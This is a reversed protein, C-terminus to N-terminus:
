AVAATLKGLTEGWGRERDSSTDGGDLIVLQDTVVVETRSGTGALQVTVMSTTIRRDGQAITMSYCLRRDAVIDEYRCSELYPVEGPPGFWIEKLGGVRLEHREIRATWTRDGPMYWKALANPDTWAAFVRRPAAAYTRKVVITHHSTSIDNM